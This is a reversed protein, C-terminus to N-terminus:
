IHNIVKIFCFRLRNTGELNLHLGGDKIAFLEMRPEGKCLFAKYSAVFQVHLRSCLYCKLKKNIEIWKGKTQLLDVPRPLISSMVIKVTKCKKRTVAVLNAYLSMMEDVSKNAVDNTGVHFIVVDFGCVCAKGYQVHQTLSAISAGPFAQV